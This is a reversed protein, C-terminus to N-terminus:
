HPGGDGGVGAVQSHGRTRRLTCPRLLGRSSSEETPPLPLCGHLAPAWLSTRKQACPPRRPFKRQESAPPESSPNTDRPWMMPGMEGYLGLGGPCSARPPPGVAPGAGPSWAQPSPDHMERQTSPNVSPPARHRAPWPCMHTLPCCWSTPGKGEPGPSTIQPELQDTAGGGRGRM